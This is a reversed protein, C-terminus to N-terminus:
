ARAWCCGVKPVTNDAMGSLSLVESPVSQRSMARPANRPSRDTGMPKSVGIREAHGVRSGCRLEGQHRLSLPFFRASTHVDNLSQGLAWCTTLLINIVRHLFEAERTCLDVDQQSPIESVWPQRAKKRTPATWVM